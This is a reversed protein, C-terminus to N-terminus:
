FMDQGISTNRSISVQFKLKESLVIWHGYISYLLNKKRLAGLLRVSMVRVRVVRPCAYFVFCFVHCYSVPSNCFVQRHSTCVIETIAM